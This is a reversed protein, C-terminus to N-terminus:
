KECIIYEWVNSGKSQADFYTTLVNLKQDLRELSQQKHFRDM